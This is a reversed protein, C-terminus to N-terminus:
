WIPQNDIASRLLTPWIGPTQYFSEASVVALPHEESAFISLVEAGSNAEFYLRHTTGEPGTSVVESTLNGQSFCAGFAFLFVAAFLCTLRLM